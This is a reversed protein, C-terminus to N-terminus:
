TPMNYTSLYDTDHNAYGKYAPMSYYTLQMDHQFYITKYM